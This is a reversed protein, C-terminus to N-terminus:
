PQGGDGMQREYSQRVLSMVYPLEDFSKLGVEVDGSTWRGMGTVDRCLAKPDHLAAFEVNIACLLRKTQPVISVFTGEAKYVVYLKKFEETVCPDLALVEKRFAEFVERLGPTLLNPHVTTRFEAEKQSAIILRASEEAQVGSKEIRTVQSYKEFPAKIDMGVWDIEPLVQALPKPHIGATHLGIKYGLKRVERMAESLGKQLAPEGGSFVVAELKGKREALFAMVDEWLLTGRRFPQLHPNHCYGCRWPCGQSFLVASLLGPYDVTSFPIMGAIQM